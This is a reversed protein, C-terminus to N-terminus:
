QVSTGCDFIFVVEDDFDVTVGTGTKTAKLGTGATVTQVAADWATVKEASIGELVTQNAHVHADDELAGVREAMAENLGDAYDKANQEAANWKAVDGDAIKALEAANAHEHAKAEAADWKAKDGSAILDLEAKNAHEHDIAELAEVRTNMATNLGDAHAKADAEAQDAYAKDAIDIAEIAKLRTDLGGEIGAAREAEATIAAANDSIDKKMGTVETGHNKVYQILDNVGDVVETDVGNTLLEIADANSKIKGELETKDAAKLYDAEIADIADTNAKIDAKVQTDNYTAAAQADAIMEVVTKNEAVDGVKEALADVADQADDGAKQAAEIAADKGDAYDKAQKLIGNDANNIADIAAQLGAEIGEAREQEATVKGALETKDAEVLYDNEIAQVRDAIAGVTEDSAINSTKADIYKVVTDVGESATFTGVYTELADVEGQVKAVETDTYGKAATLKASADTKTEYAGAAANAHETLKGDVAAAADEGAKKAAAIADALGNIDTMEHGHVKAAYTEGLKLEEIASDIQTEVSGGEGIAAELADVRSEIKADETDAYAKADVLAQAAAGKADYVETYDPLDARTIVVKGDVENVASVYKGAVATDTVDLADIANKIKIDVAGDTAIAAELVDVREDMAKDLDDAHKIAEGKATAIAANMQETTSYAAIADAIAKAVSGAGTGNLVGIATENDAAKKEVADMESQLTDIEGEATTIRGALKQMAEDTAIGANGIVTNIFATLSEESKAAAVVDSAKAYFNWPLDKFTKVGDEGIKIMVVPETLGNGASAAVTAFAVEGRKLALTSENWNALTDVKLGLRVNNFIKEAM